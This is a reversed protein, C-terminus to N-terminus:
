INGSGWQINTLNAVDGFDTTYRGTEKQFGSFENGISVTISIRNNERKQSLGTVFGDFIQYLTGLEAFTTPDSIMKYIYVETDLYNAAALLTDAVTEDLTDFTINASIATAFYETSISDINSIMSTSDFTQVGATPTSVSIPFPGDTLYLSGIEVLNQVRIASDTLAVM